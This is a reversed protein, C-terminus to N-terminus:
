PAEGTRKLWLDSVFMNYNSSSAHKTKVQLALYHMGDTPVVVSITKLANYTTGAAYLEIYDSNDVGDVRPTIRGYASSTITLITLLYTGKRAFFLWSLANNQAVPTVGVIFGNIMNVNAARSVAGGAYLDAAIPDLYVIEPYQVACGSESMFCWLMASIADKAQEPTLSGTQEFQWRDALDTLAGTILFLLAKDISVIREQIEGSLASPLPVGDLNM